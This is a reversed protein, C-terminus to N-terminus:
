RPTAAEEQLLAQAVRDPTMEHEPDAEHACEVLPLRVQRRTATQEPHALGRRVAEALVDKLRRNQTAARIKLARVLDDPLELTTKM